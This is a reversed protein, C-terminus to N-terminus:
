GGTHYDKVGKTPKSPVVISNVPKRAGSHNPGNVTDMLQATLTGTLVETPASSPGAVNASCREQIYGRFTGFVTGTVAITDYTFPTNGYGWPTPSYVAGSSSEFVVRCTLYGASSGKYGTATATVLYPGSSSVGVEAVVTSTNLGLNV